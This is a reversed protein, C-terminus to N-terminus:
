CSQMGEPLRLSSDIEKAKGAELSRRSGHSLSSDKLKSLLLMADEFRERGRM